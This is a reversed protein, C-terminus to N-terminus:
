TSRATVRPKEREVVAEMLKQIKRRSDDRRATLSSACVVPGQLNRGSGGSSTGSMEVRSEADGNRM